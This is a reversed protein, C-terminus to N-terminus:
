EEDLVQKLHARAEQLMREVTRKSRSVRVAIEAVDYGEMRLEFMRRAVPTLRELTDQVVLRLFTTAFEEGNELEAAPELVDLEATSRIDRKAAQHFASEGRIKNLAIILLLNWLDDGAPVDYLGRNAGAFFIRFVSQVIDEADVRRGLEASTKVRALARLRNAYRVYLQTAADESGCRLRRVLSGDSVGNAAMGDQPQKSM